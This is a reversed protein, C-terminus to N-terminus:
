RPPNPRNGEGGDASGALEDTLQQLFLRFKTFDGKVLEWAAPLDDALKKVRPWDLVYDYAHRVVHRFGRYTDLSQITEPGLVPPRVDPIEEGMNYLLERHWDPGGYVMLDFTRAIRQLAEEVASYFHHLCLAIGYLELHSPQVSRLGAMAQTLEDVLQGAASLDRKSAAQLTRLEGLREESGTM